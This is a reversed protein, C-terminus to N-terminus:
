TTYQNPNTLTDLKFVENPVFLKVTANLGYCLAQVALVGSAKMQGKSIQAISATSCDIFRKAQEMNVGSISSCLNTISKKTIYIKMLKALPNMPKDPKNVKQKRQMWNKYATQIKIAAQTEKLRKLKKKALWGRVNKQIKVAAEHNKKETNRLIYIALSNIIPVLLLLGVVFHKIRNTLSRSYSQQIVNKKFASQINNFGQRYPRMILLRYLSDNLCYTSLYTTRM